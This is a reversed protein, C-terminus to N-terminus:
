LDEMKAKQLKYILTEGLPLTITLVGDGTDKHKWIGYVHFGYNGRTTQDFTCLQEYKRETMGATLSDLGIGQNSVKYKEKWNDAM